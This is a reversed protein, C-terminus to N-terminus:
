SLAKGEEFGNIYDLAYGAHVKSGNSYGGLDTTGSLLTRQNNIESNATRKQEDTWGLSTTNNTVNGGEAIGDGWQFLGGFFKEAEATSTFPDHKYACGLTSTFVTVYSTKACYIKVTDTGSVINLDCGAIFANPVFEESHMLPKEYVKKM